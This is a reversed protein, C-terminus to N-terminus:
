CQEDGAGDDRWEEPPMGVQLALRAHLYAFTTVGARRAAALAVEREPKTCRGNNLSVAALRRATQQWNLALEPQFHM